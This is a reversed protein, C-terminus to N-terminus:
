GGSRRANTFPDDIVRGCVSRSGTLPPSEPRRQCYRPAAALQAFRVKEELRPRATISPLRGSVVEGRMDRAEGICCFASV